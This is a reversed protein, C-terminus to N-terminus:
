GAGEDRGDDTRESVAAGDRAPEIRLPLGPFLRENGEVVVEAGPTLSPADVVLRDGVAFLVRVTAPASVGGANFYVFTGTDRTLVADKPVTLMERQQGTPALGVISMGPKLAGDKNKIRVRVPFLRALEDARPVVASVRGEYVRGTARVRIQAVGGASQLPALLSEPVNLWADLMGLDLLDVLADGTGVWEGVETAKRTVVGTFPATITLDDLRQLARNLAATDAAAAARAAALNAEGIVLDSRADLVEKESASEGLALLRDFDRQARVVGAERAEVAALSADHRARAEDVDAKALADDLRALVAGREVRQGAEVALSVVLGAERSAVTSERVARVEGTVERRPQVLRLEAREVVVRVSHPDAQSQALASGSGGLTVLVLSIPM